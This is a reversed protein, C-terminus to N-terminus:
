ALIDILKEVQKDSVRRLLEKGKVTLEFLPMLTLGWHGRPTRCVLGGEELLQLLEYPDDIGSHNSIYGLPAPSRAMNLALLIRAKNEKIVNSV